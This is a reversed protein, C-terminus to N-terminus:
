KRKPETVTTTRSFSSFLYSLTLFQGSPPIQFYIEEVGGGLFVNEVCIM